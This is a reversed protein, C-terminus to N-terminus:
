PNNSKVFKSSGIQRLYGWGLGMDVYAVICIPSAAATAPRDELSFYTKIWSMKVLPWESLQRSPLLLVILWLVSLFFGWPSLPGRKTHFPTRIRMSKWVEHPSTDIQMPVYNMARVSVEDILASVVIPLEQWFKNSSACQKNKFLPRVKVVLYMRNWWIIYSQNALHIKMIM